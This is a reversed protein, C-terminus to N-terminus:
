LKEWWGGSTPNRTLQQHHQSIDTTDEGPTHTARHHLHQGLPGRPGLELGHRGDKLDGGLGGVGRQGGVDGVVAAVEELADEHVGLQPGRGVVKQPVDKNM